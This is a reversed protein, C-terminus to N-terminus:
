AILQIIIINFYSSFAPLRSPLTPAPYVSVGQPRKPMDVPGFGIRKAVRTQAQAGQEPSRGSVGCSCQFPLALALCFMASPQEDFEQGLLLFDNALLSM